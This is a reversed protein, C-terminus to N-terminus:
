LIQRKYVDLHTYSVPKMDDQINDPFSIFNKVKTGKKVERAFIEVNSKTAEKVIIEYESSADLFFLIRKSIDDPLCGM